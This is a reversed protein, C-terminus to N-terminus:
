REGGALVEDTADLQPEDAGVPQDVVPASPRADETSNAIRWLLWSWLAMRLVVVLAYTEPPLGRGPDSAFAIHLWTMVFHLTEGFAWVLHEWWPRTSLALLPLLWLGSQVSLSAATLAVVGMMVAAVQVVGAQHWRRAVVVGLVLALLWGALAIWTPLPAPIGGGLLQPIMQLAGYGTSQGLWQRAAFLSQPEVAILPVLVLLAGLVVGVLLQGIRLLDRRRWAVLVVAALFILPFPRVLVALGLLLGASWPRGRRWSWLGLMTLAVGLLDVSVLALTVLVPSVALHAAQWPRGPQLAVTAVVAAALLLVAALAWLGFVWQQAAIGQGTQPSVQAILWMVVGPLPPQTSPADGTWPLSGQALPSSVHVVPLDSYCARWFQDPTAWGKMLCHGKQWVALAMVAAGLLVLTLASAVLGRAGIVAYRGTPGGILGTARAVVPDDWSPVRFPVDRRARTRPDPSTM